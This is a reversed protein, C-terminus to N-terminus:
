PSPECSVFRGNTSSALLNIDPEADADIDGCVPKKTLVDPEKSPPNVTSPLPLNVPSKTTSLLIIALSITTSNIDDDIKKEEPEFLNPSSSVSLCSNVPETSIVPESM